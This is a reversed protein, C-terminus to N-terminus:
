WCHTLTDITKTPLDDMERDLCQLPFLSRPEECAAMFDRRPVWWPIMWWSSQLSRNNRWSAESMTFIYSFIRWINGEVDKMWGIRPVRLARLAGTTYVCSSADCRAASRRPGITMGTPKLCPQSIMPFGRLFHLNFFPFDHSLRRFCQL